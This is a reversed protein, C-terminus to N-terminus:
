TSAQRVKQFLSEDMIQGSVRRAGEDILRRQEAGSLHESVTNGAQDTLSFWGDDYDKLHYADYKVQYADYVMFASTVLVMIWPLKRKLLKKLEYWYLTRFNKM